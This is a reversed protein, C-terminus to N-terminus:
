PELRALRMRALVRMETTAVPSEAVARYAARAADAQGLQERGLGVYYLSEMALATPVAADALKSLDALAEAIKGREIQVRGRLLRWPAAHKPEVYEMARSLLREARAADGEDFAQRAARLLLGDAGLRCTVPRARAPEDSFLLPPAGADEAGTQPDGAPVALEDPLPAVEQVLLIELWLRKLLERQAAGLSRGSAEAIRELAIRYQPSGVPLPQIPGVGPPHAPHEELLEVYVGVADAFRGAADYAEMTRRRLLGVLWVPPDAHLAAEYGAIATIWDGALRAREAQTFSPLAELELAALEEIPKRLVEGSVGRFVLRGDRLGLVEVRRFPPRDQLLVTDAYASGAM